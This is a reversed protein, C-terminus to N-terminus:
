SDGIRNRVAELAQRIVFELEGTADGLAEQLAQETAEGGTQSLIRVASQRQPGESAAFERLMAQEIPPGMSICHNEWLTANNRWQAVLVTVMDESPRKLALNVLESPVPEGRNALDVSARTAVEAARDIDLEWVAIARAITGHFDVGPETLLEILRQAIDARFASPEADALRQVAQEIRQLDISRLERLNQEYFEPNDRQFLKDPNGEIFVSSDIIIEAVQIEPFIRGIRGLPSALAALRELNIELGTLVFLYNGEDRPYIHSTPDANTIRTMYDRVAIRHSESLGILYLGYAQYPSDASKLREIEQELPRLGINERLERIRAEEPSTERASQENADDTQSTTQATTEAQREGLPQTREQFIFPLSVLTAALLGGILVAPLRSRPNAYLLLAFGLAAAFGALILRRAHDIGDLMGGQQSGFILLLAMIVMAVVGAVGAIIRQPPLPEFTNIPPPTPAPQYAQPMGLEMEVPRAKRVRHFGDLGRRHSEGPYFKRVRVIVDDRIHFRHECIGCEVMRDRLEPKVRFRQNCSPCRILLNNDDNKQLPIM